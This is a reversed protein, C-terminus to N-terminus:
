CNLSLDDASAICYFSCYQTDYILSIQLLRNYYLFRVSFSVIIDEGGRVRIILNDRLQDKGANLRAATHPDVFVELQVRTKHGAHLM